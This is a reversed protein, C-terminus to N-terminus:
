PLFSRVHSGSECPEGADGSAEDRARTGGDPVELVTREAVGVAAAVRRRRLVRPVVGRLRGVRVGVPVRGRRVCPGMVVRLGVRGRRRGFSRALVSLDRAVRRPMVDHRNVGPMGARARAAARRALSAVLGGAHAAGDAAFPSVAAVRIAVPAAAILAALRANRTARVVAAADVPLSAHRAAADLGRVARGSPCAAPADAVGIALPARRSRM